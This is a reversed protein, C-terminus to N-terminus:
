PGSAVYVTREPQERKVAMCELAELISLMSHKGDNAVRSYVWKQIIFSLMTIMMEKGLTLPYSLQNPAM